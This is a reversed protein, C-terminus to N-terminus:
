QSNNPLPFIKQSPLGRLQFISYTTNHIDLRKAVVCYMARNKCYLHIAFTSLFSYDNPWPKLNGYVSDLFIDSRGGAGVEKSM